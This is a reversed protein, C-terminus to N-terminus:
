RFDLTKNGPLKKLEAELVKDRSAKDCVIYNGNIVLLVRGDALPAEKYEQPPAEAKLGLLRKIFRLV